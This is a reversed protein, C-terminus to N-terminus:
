NEEGVNLDLIHGLGYLTLDPVIEIRRGVGQTAHQAHGGTACVKVRGGLESCIDKLLERIMGRYGVTAGIRIADETSRGIVSTPEAGVKVRPLLATRDALYDTMLPLGPAIIGGVYDAKQNVIDFTLATGFDAVVVPAGLLRVAGAANALRDAGIRAPKPYDIGVGLPIRHSVMLPRVSYLRELADHWLANRQPVVSAIVARDCTNKRLLKALGERIHSLGRRNSPLTRSRIVAGDKWIGVSTSTNGIDVVLGLAAGQGM